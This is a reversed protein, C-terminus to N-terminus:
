LRVPDGVNVMVIPISTTAGRAAYAAATPQAVILDVKLRVLEAALAPLREYHTDAFRFEISINQEEIWGLERLGERFAVQFGSGAPGSALYGIRRRVVTQQAAVPLPALLARAAPHALVGVWAMATRRSPTDISQIVEDERKLSPARPNGEPPAM